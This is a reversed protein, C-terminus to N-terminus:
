LDLVLKATPSLWVHVLLWNVPLVGFKHRLLSALRGCDSKLKEQICKFVRLGWVVQVGLRETEILGVDALLGSKASNVGPPVM